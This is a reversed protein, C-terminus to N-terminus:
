TINGQPLRVLVGRDQPLKGGEIKGFKSYENARSNSTVSPSISRRNRALPASTSSRADQSLM